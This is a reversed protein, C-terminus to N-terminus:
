SGVAVSQVGSHATGGSCGRLCEGLACLEEYACWMLPDLTLAARHYSVAARHRNTLGCIRGLLYYGAAGRPVQVPVTGFHLAAVTYTGGYM